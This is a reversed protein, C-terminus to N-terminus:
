SLNIKNKSENKYDLKILSMLEIENAEPYYKYILQAKISNELANSYDGIYYQSLAMKSYAYIKKNEIYGQNGPNKIFKDFYKIASVFDEKVVAKDGLEFADTLIDTVNELESVRQKLKEIDDKIDDIVKKFINNSALSVQRTIPDSNIGASTRQNNLISNDRNGTNRRNFNTAKSDIYSGINPTDSTDKARIDHTNRRIRVKDEKNYNARYHPDSSNVKTL